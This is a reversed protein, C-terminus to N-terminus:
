VIYLHYLQTEAVTVIDGNLAFGILKHRLTLSSHLFSPLATTLTLPPEPPEAGGGLGGAGM